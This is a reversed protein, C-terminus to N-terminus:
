WGTQHSRRRNGDTEPLSGRRRNEQHPHHLSEVGALRASSTVTVHNLKLPDGLYIGHALHLNGGKLPNTEGNLLALHRGDHTGGTGALRGQHVNYSAQVNGGGSLVDQVILVNTPQAIVVQRFDAVSLYAENKM